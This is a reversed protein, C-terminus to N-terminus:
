TSKRLTQSFYDNLYDEFCQNESAEHVSQQRLSVGALEQWQKQKQEALRHGSLFKAHEQQKCVLFEKLLLGSDKWHNVFNASLNPKKGQAVLQQHNLAKSYIGNATSEAKDMWAALPEMEVLLESLADGVLMQRDKFLVKSKPNRGCDVIAKLNCAGQMKDVHGLVASPTLMLYFLFLDCFASTEESLGLPNMPDLDLGRFEIYEVGHNFLAVAPREGKSASSDPKPRINFYYENEIQLLNRNLQSYCGDPTMVDSDLLRSDPMKTAMLLDKSYKEVSQFALQISAQASNQYGLDGLRLSCSKQGLYVGSEVKELCLPFRKGRVSESFCAPSAGFLYAFVWQYRIFNRILGMYRQSILDQGGVDVFGPLAGLKELLAAPFSINYHIGAILQMANGYRSVLGKRYIRKMRASNSRGYSALPVNQVQEENELCPMSYPWLFEPEPQEQLAQTVFALIDQLSEFLASRGQIPETVCELLSESFDTTLFPHMLASGLSKLHPTTVYHGFADVRLNEKEIGRVISDLPFPETQVALLKLQQQYFSM